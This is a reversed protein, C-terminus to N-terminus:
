DDTMIEGEDSDAGRSNMKAELRRELIYVARVMARLSLAITDAASEFFKRAMDPLESETKYRIYRTGPRLIDERDNGAIVEHVKLTEQVRRIRYLVIETQDLSEAQTPPNTQLPLMQLLARRFPADRQKEDLQDNTLAKEFWDMYNDLTEPECNLADDATLSQAHLQESEAQRQPQPYPFLKNWIHWDISTTGLEGMSAPHREVNDFPSLLKTVVIVLAMLRTSPFDLVDVRTNNDARFSFDYKMIRGLREVAVFTEVVAFNALPRLFCM